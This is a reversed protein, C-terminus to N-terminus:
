RVSPLVIGPPLEFRMINSEIGTNFEISACKQLLISVVKPYTTLYMTRDMKTQTQKRNTLETSLRANLVADTSDNVFFHSLSTAADEPLESSTYDPKFNKLIRVVLITKPTHFENPQIQAARRKAM